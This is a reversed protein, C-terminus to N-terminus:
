EDDDSVKQWHTSSEARFLLKEHYEKFDRAREREIKVCVAEEGDVAIGTNRCYAAIESVLGSLKRCQEATAEKPSLKQQVVLLLEFEEIPVGHVTEQREAFDVVWVRPTRLEPDALEFIPNDIWEATFPLSFEGQSLAEVLGDALTMLKDTTEAM